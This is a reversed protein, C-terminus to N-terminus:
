WRLLRAGGAPLGLAVGDLATWGSRNPDFEQPRPSESQLRLTITAPRRYDRNVLLVMVQGTRDEFFGATVSGGSIAEVRGFPLPPATEGTSDRVAVSHFPAMEAALARLQRNLAAAQTYHQTPQGAEILGSRFKLVDAHEVHVPTWYAFYSIGSAGYALAHYAQWSLEAETPDRYPGHPMALVILMFPLRHREGLERFRALSAFFTPRDDKVGFTYYDYSLLTPRVAEIFRDLYQAYRAEARAGFAYDAYVNIYALTNPDNARLRTVVARLADFRADSPEDTVFYGGLAPHGRYQEVAADVGSEWGPHAPASQNYRADSVWMTLGHRAAVALARLNGEPTIPGECPPGVVTFGAAAIQAARDDDFEPLPPGCWFTTIFAPAAPVAAGVTAPVRAATACGSVVFALLVSLTQVIVDRANPTTRRTEAGGNWAFMVIAAIVGCIVLGEGVSLVRYFPHADTRRFLPDFVPPDLWWAAAVSGVATVMLATRHRRVWQVMRTTSLHAGPRAAAEFLLVGWAGGLTNLVIDNIDFYTDPTNAYIVLHQYTEDVFGALTAVALASPGGLGARLALAAILAFQPLHILEINVVLLWHQAAATVALLALLSVLTQRRLVFRYGVVILPVAVALSVLPILALAGRDYTSFGWQARLRDAVDSVWKHLLPNAVTLAGIACWWAYATGTQAGTAHVPDPARRM